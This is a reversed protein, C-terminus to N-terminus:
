SAVSGDESMVHRRSSQVKRACKVAFARLGENRLVQTGRFGLRLARRRLSGVPALRSGAKTSLRALVAALKPQPPWTGNPVPESRKRLVVISEPGNRLVAEIDYALAYRHRIEVLMELLENQTWVHFHTSYQIDVLRKVEAEAVAGSMKGVLRVVEHMHDMYSWAPGQEHDRFLHELSTVPRPLDFTERKDPIAMFLIGGPKLVELHRKITGIPDQTHELFHNAIIFDQSSSAFKELKEGDDVVDVDIFHLDALEPYHRRLSEVDLRDVYTVGSCWVSVPQPSHLAGIELGKGALFRGALYGRPGNRVRFVCGAFDMEAEGKCAVCRLCHEGESFMMTDLMASFGIVDASDPLNPYAERLEPRPKLAIPTDLIRGDVRLRILRGPGDPDIMWGEIPLPGSVYHHNIFPQLFGCCGEAPKIDM